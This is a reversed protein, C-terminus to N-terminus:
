FEHFIPRYLRFIPKPIPPDSLRLEAWRQYCCYTTPVWSLLLIISSSAWFILCSPRLEYSILMHKLVTQPRPTVMTPAWPLLCSCFNSSMVTVEHESSMFIFVHEYNILAGGGLVGPCNGRGFTPSRPYVWKLVMLGVMLRVLVVLFNAYLRPAIYLWAYRLLWPYQM